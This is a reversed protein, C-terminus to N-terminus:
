AGCPVRVPMRHLIRRQGGRRRYMSRARTGRLSCALSAPLWDVRTHRQRAPSEELNGAQYLVPGHCARGRCVPRFHHRVRLVRGRFRRGLARRRDKSHEPLLGPLLSLSDVFWSRLCLRTRAFETRRISGYGWRAYLGGTAEDRRHAIIGFPLRAGNHQFHACPHPSIAVGHAARARANAHARRESFDGGIITPSACSLQCVQRLQCRFSNRHLKPPHM